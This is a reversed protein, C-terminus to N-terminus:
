EASFFIREEGNERATYRRVGLVSELENGSLLTGTTGFFRLMGADLLAVDDAYRVADSLNHTVSLVTKGRTKVLESLLAMFRSEHDADMNATAEDLVILPTDQALIMGLYARRREGGSLRDVYRHRLSLLEADALATEVIEFDRADLKEGIGHYPSRGFRVLEEVTIHPSSLTQPMVAVAAARERRSMASLAKGDLRITGTYPLMGNLCAVITSKGCGNRGVLAAFRGDALSFSINRLVQTKGYAACLADLELNM